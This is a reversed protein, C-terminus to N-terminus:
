CRQAHWFSNWRLSGICFARQRFRGVVAQSSGVSLQLHVPQLQLSCSFQRCNSLFRCFIGRTFSAFGSSTLMCGTPHLIVLIKVSEIHGFMERASSGVVKLCAHESFTGSMSTNHAFCGVKRCVTDKVWLIISNYSDKLEVPSKTPLQNNQM